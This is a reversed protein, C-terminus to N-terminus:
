ITAFRRWFTLKLPKPISLPFDPRVQAFTPRDAPSEKWTWHLLKELYPPTNDPIGPTASHDRIAIAVDMLDRGAYPEQRALM